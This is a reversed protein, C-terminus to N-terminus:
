NAITIKIYLNGNENSSDGAEYSVTDDQAPNESGQSQSIKVWKNLPVVTTTGTKQDFQNGSNILDQQSFIRKITVKITSQQLEPHILFGKNAQMRQYGVGSVWGADVQSIVPYNKGTEVYAYSGSEVQVSQNKQQELESDTSYNVADQSQNLWDDGGQHITVILQKPAIDLQQIINKLQSLTDEGVHMILNKNYVQITEGSKLMPNLAKQVQVPDAYNIPIVTNVFTQAYSLGTILCLTAIIKFMFIRKFNGNLQLLAHPFIGGTVAM